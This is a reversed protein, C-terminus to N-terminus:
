SDHDGGIFVEAKRDAWCSISVAVPLGALHTPEHEIAVALATLPGGFGGPGIELSQVETEILKELRAYSAEPHPEGTPRLLAKKSLFLAREATGGIGVGLVIPPCPKGGAARVMERVAAVVGEAGATPNLMALASCNESGFGKLMMRVSLGPTRKCSWHFVAPLNSNTNIRSFVPDAVISNRFFGRAVARSIGEEVADEILPSSVVMDPGVEVFAVVMGTDQCMPIGREDAIRLNESIMMLVELSAEYSAIRNDHPELAELANRTERTMWELRSVLAPELHRSADVLADAVSAALKEYPKANM